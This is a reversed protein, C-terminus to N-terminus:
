NVAETENAMDSAIATLNKARELDAINQETQLQLADLRTNLDSLLLTM